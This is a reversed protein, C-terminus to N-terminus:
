KGPQPTDTTEVSCSLHLLPLPDLPRDDAVKDVHEPVHGLGGLGQGAKKGGEQVGERLLDNICTGRHVDEPLKIEILAM